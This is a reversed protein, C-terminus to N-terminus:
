DGSEETAEPEPEIPNGEEDLLNGSVPDVGTELDGDILMQALEDLQEYYEEPIDSDHAEAFGMGGNGLNLLYNDGGLFADMDEELLAAIMDYVGQDVRKIASTILYEAGEVSGGDFTTNYEDQDVGIVYIGQSAAEAIAASGLPGGAGFVIFAGEGIFQQALSIGQAQDNFDDGYVGLINTGSEWDPNIYKIGQEFGNRFRVVAPVPLGYVGALIDEENENAVMAALAGVLFASQDERYQIGVFNETTGQASQDVGIFYIDPNAEAAEATADNLLFGVTVIIDANDDICARINPEYDAASTSELFSYELDFDDSADTAGVHAFENFTGDDVRGVDTVLCVTEIDQATAAPIFALVLAILVLFVFSKRAM